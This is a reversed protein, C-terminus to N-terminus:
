FLRNAAVPKILIRGYITGVPDVLDVVTFQALGAYSSLFRGYYVGGIKSAAINTGVLARTLSHNPTNVDDYFNVEILTDPLLIAAGVDLQRIPVSNAPYQASRFPENTVAAIANASTVNNSSLAVPALLGSSLVCFEGDVLSVTSPNATPWRVTRRNQTNFVDPVCAARIAATAM